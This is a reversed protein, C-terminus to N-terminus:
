IGCGGSVNAFVLQQGALMLDLPQQAESEHYAATDPKHCSHAAAQPFYADM